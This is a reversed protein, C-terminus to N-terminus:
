RSAWAIAEMETLVTVETDSDWTTEKGVAGSFDPEYVFDPLALTKCRFQYSPTREMIELLIWRFSIPGIEWLVIQGPECDRLRTKVKGGM